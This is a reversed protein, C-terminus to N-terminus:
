LEEYTGRAIVSRWRVMDQIDDVEFCVHPNGRMIDIKEGENTHGYVYGGKYVYTVPVVYPQNDRCCAIRGIHQTELIIDIHAQDLENIVLAEAQQPADKFPQLERAQRVPLSHAGFAATLRPM